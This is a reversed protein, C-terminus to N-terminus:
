SNGALCNDCRKSVYEYTVRQIAHLCQDTRESISKRHLVKCESYEKEYNLQPKMVRTKLKKEVIAHLHYHLPGCWIYAIIQAKICQLHSM